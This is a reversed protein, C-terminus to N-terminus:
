PRLGYRNIFKAVGDPNAAVWKELAPRYAQRYTLLLLAPELQGDREFVQMQRLAPDSLEKGSKTNLEGIIKLATRWTELEIDFASLKKDKDDGRLKIEVMGMALWFASDPTGNEKQIRADLSIKLNGDSGANVQSGRRLQLPKLPKIHNLAMWVSAPTPEAAIADILAQAAADGKDQALLANSLFRWAQSNRPEIETARRFLAEAQPYDKQAFHCNGAVVWLGSVKPALPFAAEYKKLADAYRGEAFLQEGAEFLKAADPPMPNLPAPRGDRLLRLTELAIPSDPRLKLAENANAEAAARAKEADAPAMRESMALLLAARASLPLASDPAINVAETYKGWAENLKGQTQLVYAEKVKALCAERCTEAAFGAPAALSIAVALLTSRIM